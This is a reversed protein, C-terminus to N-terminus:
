LDVYADIMQCIAEIDDKEEDNLEYSLKDIPDNLGKVINLIFHKM